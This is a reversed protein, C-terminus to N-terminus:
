IEEIKVVFKRGNLFCLEIGEEKEKVQAIFLDEIAGKIEMTLTETNMEM